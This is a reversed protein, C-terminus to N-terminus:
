LGFLQEIEGLTRAALFAAAVLVVALVFWFRLSARKRERHRRERAARRARHFHYAREVAGPDLPPEEDSLPEDPAIQTGLRAVLSTYSSQLTQSFPAARLSAECLRRKGGRGAASRGMSHTGHVAGFSGELARPERQSTDAGKM